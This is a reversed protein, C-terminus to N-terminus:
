GAIDSADLWGRDLARQVLDGASKLGSCTLTKPRVMFAVIELKGRLSEQIADAREQPMAKDLDPGPPPPITHRLELLYSLWLLNTRPHYDKWGGTAKALSAQGGLDEGMPDGLLVEARM